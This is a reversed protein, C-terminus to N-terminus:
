RLTPDFSCCSTSVRERRIGATPQSQHGRRRESEFTAWSTEVAGTWEAKKRVSKGVESEEDVVVM